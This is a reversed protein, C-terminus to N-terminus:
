SFTDELDDRGGSFWRKTDPRFMMYVAAANLAFNLLTFPLLRGPVQGTFVGFLGFLGIAFFVTIIWKAVTSGRRAVFYWLLLNIAIGVIMIVPMFWGPLIQSGPNAAIQEQIVDWNLVSNLLGLAIAGLYFREFWVISQPRAM